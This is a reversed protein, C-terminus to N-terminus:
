ADGWVEPTLLNEAKVRLEEEDMREWSMPGPFGGKGRKVATEWAQKRSFNRRTFKSGGRFRSLLSEVTPSALQQLLLPAPPPNHTDNQQPAKPEYAHFGVATSLSSISSYKQCMLLLRFVKLLRWM